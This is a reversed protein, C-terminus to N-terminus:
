LTDSATRSDYTSAPTEGKIYLPHRPQGNKTIGLHYLKEPLLNIVHAARGQHAGDNGWAILNMGVRPSHSMAKLWVDNDPGVPEIARKMADPSKDCWAFANAMVVGGMRWRVAFGICRTSTRDDDFENAGSPNLGYVALLPLCPSWIRWLLYRYRRCPSFVAGKGPRDLVSLDIEV